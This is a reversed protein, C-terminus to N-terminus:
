SRIMKADNLSHRRTEIGIAVSPLTFMALDSSGLNNSSDGSDATSTSLQGEFSGQGM